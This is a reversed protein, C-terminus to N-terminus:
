PKAEASMQGDVHGVGYGERFAKAAAKEAAAICAPRVDFDYGTHELPKRTIGLWAALRTLIRTM